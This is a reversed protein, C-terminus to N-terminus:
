TKSTQASLLSEPYGAFRRIVRLAVHSVIRSVGLAADDLLASTLEEQLIPVNEEENFLPVVVSVAPSGVSM